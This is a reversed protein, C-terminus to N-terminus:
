LLSADGCVVVGQPRRGSLLNQTQNVDSTFLRGFPEVKSKDTWLINGEDMHTTASKLDANNYSGPHTKALQDSM